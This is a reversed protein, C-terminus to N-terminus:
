QETALVAEAIHRARQLRQHQEATGSFKFPETAALLERLADAFPRVPSQEPAPPVIVDPPKLM